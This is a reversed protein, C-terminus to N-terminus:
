HALCKAYAANHQQPLLNVSPLGTGQYVLPHGEHEVKVFLHGKSMQSFFNPSPDLPHSILGQPAPPISKVIPFMTPFLHPVGM